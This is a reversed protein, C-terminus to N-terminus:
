DTQKHQFTAKAKTSLGLFSFHHFQQSFCLTLLFDYKTSTKSDGPKNKRKIDTHTQTTLTLTQAYTTNEVGQILLIKQKKHMWKPIKRPIKPLSIKPIKQIEYLKQYPSMVKM